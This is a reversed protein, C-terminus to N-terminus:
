REGEGSSVGASEVQPESGQSDRGARCAASRGQAAQEQGELRRLHDGHHGVRRGRVQQHERHTQALFSLWFTLM